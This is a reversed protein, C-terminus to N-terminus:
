KKDAKVVSKISKISVYYNSEGLIMLTDGIMSLSQIESLPTKFVYSTRFNDNTVLVYKNDYISYVFKDADEEDYVSVGLLSGKISTTFETFSKSKVSYDFLSIDKERETIIVFDDNIAKWRYYVMSSSYDSDNYEFWTNWATYNSSKLMKFGTFNGKSDWSREVRIMPGNWLATVRSDMDEFSIGKTIKKYTKFDKTYYLQNVNGSKDFSCIIMGDKTVADLGWKKGEVFCSKNAPTKVTSWSKLDKSIYYSAKGDTGGGMTTDEAVTYIYTKGVQYLCGLNYSDGSSTVLENYNFKKGDSTELYFNQCEYDKSYCTGTIYFKDNLCTVDFFYADSVDSDCKEKVVAEIDVDTYSKGTSTVSLVMDEENIGRLQM